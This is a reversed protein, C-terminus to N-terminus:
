KVMGRKRPRSYYSYNYERACILCREGVYYDDHKSCYSLKPKPRPEIIRDFRNSM